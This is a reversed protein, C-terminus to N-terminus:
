HITHNFPEIASLLESSINRYGQKCLDELPVHRTDADKVQITVAVLKEINNKKSIACGFEIAEQLTNFAFARSVGNKVIFDRNDSFHASGEHLGLFVTNDDKNVLLYKIQM